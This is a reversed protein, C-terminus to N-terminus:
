LPIIDAQERVRLVRVLDDGVKERSSIRIVVM